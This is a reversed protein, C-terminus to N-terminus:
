VLQIKIRTCCISFRALFRMITSNDVVAVAFFHFCIVFTLTLLLVLMVASCGNINSEIHSHATYFLLHLQHWHFLFSIASGISCLLSPPSLALFSWGYFIVNVISHFYFTCVVFVIWFRLNLYFYNCLLQVFCGCLSMFFPCAYQLSLPPSLPMPHCIRRLGSRTIFSSWAIDYAYIVNLSFKHGSDFNIKMFTFGRACSFRVCVCDSM